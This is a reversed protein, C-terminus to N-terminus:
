PRVVGRAAPVRREGREVHDREERLILRDLDIWLVEPDLRVAGAAGAPLVDVHGVRRDPEGVNGRADGRGALVLARLLLIPGHGHPDEGGPQHVQGPALTRLPDLVQSAFAAVDLEAGLDARVDEVRVPQDLVVAGAHLDPVDVTDEVAVDPREDLRRESMPRRCPCLRATRGVPGPPLSLTTATSVSRSASISRRVPVARSSRIRSRSIIMSAPEPWGPPVREAASM